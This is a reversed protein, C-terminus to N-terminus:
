VHSGAGRSNAQKRLLVAYTAAHQIRDTDV